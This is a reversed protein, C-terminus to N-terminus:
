RLPVGPIRMQVQQNRSTSTTSSSPLIVIDGEKLGSEVVVNTGDDEGLTVRVLEREGNPKLVEVYSRRETKKVAKLPVLLVNKRELLIIDGDASMGVKLRLDENPIRVKVKFIPINNSITATPSIRIVKGEFEEDPFADLSIRVPLGVSVKGIDTEDVELSLEVNKTDLLTMLVTNSSINQGKVVNVNAVIGSFPAKIITNELNRKANSLDIKAKELSLKSAELEKQLSKLQSDYNEKVLKLNSEAQTLSNKAKEFNFKATDLDSQSAFGKKFLEEIRELNNKANQYEIYANDRTIQADKLNKELQRKQTEYNLKAQEYSNEYNEYAILAQQYANQYDTPDIKVLVDGEKVRKGEEVVYIVTGSVKSTIDLSREAELVGSGSVAVALDGRRVTYTNLTINNKNSKNTRGFGWWLGIGVLILIIFIIFLKRKM